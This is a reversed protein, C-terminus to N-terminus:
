TRLKNLMSVHTTIKTIKIPLKKKLFIIKWKGNMLEVKENM